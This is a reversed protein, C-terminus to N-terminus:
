VTEANIIQISLLLVISAIIIIICGGGSESSSRKSGVTTEHSITVDTFLETSITRQDFEHYVRVSLNGMVEQFMENSPDPIKSTNITISMNSLSLQIIQSWKSLSFQDPYKKGRIYWDYRLNGQELTDTQASITFNIIDGPQVKQKDPLGSLIIIPDLVMLFANELTIGVIDPKPNPGYERFNYVLCQLYMTDTKRVNPITLQKLDASFHFKNDIVKEQDYACNREDSGDNCNVIGNCTENAAICKNLDACMFDTNAKCGCHRASEDGGNICQTSGDCTFVTSATKCEGGGCSFMGQSCEDLAILPEGNKMWMPLSSTAHYSFTDCQFKATAGVPIRISKLPEKRWQPPGKVKVEVFGDNTGLENTARCTYVGEDKVQLKSIILKRGTADEPDIKYRPHSIDPLRVDGKLWEVDPIPNGSFICLLTAKSGITGEISKSYKLTPKFREELGIQVNLYFSSLSVAKISIISNFLQCRYPNNSSDSVKLYLFHLTGEADIIIRRKDEATAPFYMNDGTGILWSLHPAPTSNPQNQCPITYYSYEKLSVDTTQKVEFGTLNAVIVEWFGSLATGWINQAFCQYTGQGTKATVSNIRIVGTIPNITYYEDNSLVKGDKKWSYIPKPDGIAECSEQAISHPKVYQINFNRKVMNPPVAGIVFGVLLLTCGVLITDFEM